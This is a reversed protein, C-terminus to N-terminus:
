IKEIACGPFFCSLLEEAKQGKAALQNSAFLCLGVGTGAGCGEFYFCDDVVKCSFDNSPIRTQGMMKQFDLFSIIQQLPGQNLRVAYVKESDSDIYLNIQDIKEIKLLHCLDERAIELSWKSQNRAELSAPLRVGSTAPENKRYITSYSATKGASNETWMAQFLNKQYTMITSKTRDIAKEVDSCLGITSSGSYNSEKADIHWYRNKHKALTHCLRTRACIAVADFVPSKLTKGNFDASLTSKLYDDMTVHNVVHIMQDVQYIAISGRYQLGDVLVTTEPSTPTIEIQYIGPFSEGWKIGDKLPHLYFRRGRYGSSLVNGAALDSVKYSGRVEILAGEARDKILVKVISSTNVSVESIAPSTPTKVAEGAFVVLSACLTTTLIFKKM